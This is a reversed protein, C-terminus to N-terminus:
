TSRWAMDTEAVRGDPATGRGAKKLIVCAYSTFLPNPNRLLYNTKLEHMKQLIKFNRYYGEHGYYGRYEVVDYGLRRYKQIQSDIPGRCWHYYAPFKAHQYSDRPAFLHLLSDALREPVLYNVLFPLTYLTPFLHVAMGNDALMGLVNRHFQEADCIHEALMKSFVLDFKKDTSFDPAAIDAQIKDVSGSAKDLESQSLDLISYDIGQDRVFDDSLQPNAGGGVDCVQKLDHERITAM